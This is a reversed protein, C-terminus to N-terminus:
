RPPVVGFRKLRPSLYIVRGDVIVFEATLEHTKRDWRIRVAWKKRLFTGFENQSDVFSLVNWERSDSESDLDIPDEERLDGSPAFEATKPAVLTERVRAVAFNYLEEETPARPRSWPVFLAVAAICLIL